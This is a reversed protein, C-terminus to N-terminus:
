GIVMSEGLEILLMPRNETPPSEGAILISEIEKARADKRQAARDHLLSTNFAHISGTKEFRRQADRAYQRSLDASTKVLALERRIDNM